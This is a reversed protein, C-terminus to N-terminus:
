NKRKNESQHVANELNWEASKQHMTNVAVVPLFFNKLILLMKLIEKM